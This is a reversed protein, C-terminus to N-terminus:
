LQDRYYKGDFISQSRRIPDKDQGPNGFLKELSGSEIWLNAYESFEMVKEDDSNAVAYSLLIGNVGGASTGSVVDVIVDSDTLAKILKYVGRGRVAEFFERSVGNMYIALSVGGMCCSVLVPERPFFLLAKWAQARESPAQQAYFLVAKEV